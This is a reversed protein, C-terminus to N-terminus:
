PLPYYVPYTPVHLYLCCCSPACCFRPPPICMCCLPCSIGTFAMCASSVHSGVLLLLLLTFYIYTHLYAYLLASFSPHLVLTNLLIHLLHSISVTLPMAPLRLFAYCTSPGSTGSFSPPCHIWEMRWLLHPIPTYLYTNFTAPHCAPLPHMAPQPSASTGFITLHTYGAVLSTLNLPFTTHPLTLYPYHTPTPHPGLHPIMGPLLYYTSVM